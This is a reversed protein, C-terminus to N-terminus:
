VYEPPYGLQCGTMGYRAGTEMIDDLDITLDKNVDTIPDWTSDPWSTTYVDGFKGITMGFDSADVKGDATPQVPQGPGAPPTAFDPRVLKRHYTPNASLHIYDRGSSIDLKGVIGDKDTRFPGTGILKNASEPDFSWSGPVTPDGPKTPPYDQWIHKPIITTGAVWSLALFSTSNYRIEITNGDVVCSHFEKLVTSESVAMAEKKYGYSFVVDEPTLPVNDHFLINSKLTVTVKSCTDGQPNVWTGEEFSSCLWPIYRTANLPDRTILSEYIKSIIQAEYFSESDLPDIKAPIDILGHRITGGREYGAPHANLSSFGFAGGYYGFGVENVFGQWQLGAYAEEGTHVGYNTRHAVYGAMTYLPICAVDDHLMAQCDYCLATAATQSPATKFDYSITDYEERHYRNYNDGDTNPYIDKESNWCEYYMDPTTAWGWGGTYIHYDYTKWAHPTCTSYTGAHDDVFIFCAALADRLLEGATNRIPDDTRRWLQIDPIEETDIPAPQGPVWANREAVHKCYERRGDGDYDKFGGQDFYSKATAISYAYKPAAPNEWGAGLAPFIFTEMPTISGPYASSLSNRDTLSAIAKRFMKADLDRQQSYDIWYQGEDWSAPFNWNMDTTPAAGGLAGLEPRMSGHGIPWMQLNLDYEYWGAESYDELVMAPNALWADIKDAPVAWDMFDINGAEFDTAENSLSGAVRFIIDNVRPGFKEFTGPSKVTTISAAMMATMLVMTIGLIRLKMKRRRRENEM